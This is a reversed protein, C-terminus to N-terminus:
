APSPLSDLTKPPNLRGRRATRATMLISDVAATTAFRSGHAHWVRGKADLVIVLPVGKIGFLRTTRVDELLVMPDRIQHASRYAVTSDRGSISLWIVDHDATRLSDAIRELTPRVAECIVCSTSIAFLVQSRGPKTEGVTMSDGAISTARLLPVYDGTAPMARLRKLEHSLPRLARLQVEKTALIVALALASVVGMAVAGGRVWKDTRM